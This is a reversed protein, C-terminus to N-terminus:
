VADSFWTIYMCTMKQQRSPDLSFDFNLRWSHLRLASHTSIILYLGFGMLWRLTVCKADQFYKWGSCAPPMEQWRAYCVPCRGAYIHIFIYAINTCLAIYCTESLHINLYVTKLYGLGSVHWRFNRQLCDPSPFTITDLILSHIWWLWCATQRECLVSLSYFYIQVPVAVYNLFCAGWDTTLWLKHVVFIARIDGNNTGSYTNNFCIGALFIFFYNFSFIHIWCSGTLIFGLKEMLFYVSISSFM